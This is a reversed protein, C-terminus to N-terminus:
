IKNKVNSQKTRLKLKANRAIVPSNYKNRKSQILSSHKLKDNTEKTLGTNWPKIGNRGGSKGLGIGGLMGAIKCRKFQYNVPAQRKM